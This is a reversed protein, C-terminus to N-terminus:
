RWTRRSVGLRLLVTDVVVVVAGAGAGAAVVVVVVVIVVVMMEMVVEVAMVAVIRLFRGWARRMWSGVRESGVRAIDM